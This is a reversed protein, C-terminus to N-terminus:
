RIYFAALVIRFGLDDAQTHPPAFARHRTTAANPTLKFSGGRVARPGTDSLRGKNEGRPNICWERINGSMGRVNFPSEGSTYATVPTLQGHGGDLTNCNESDFTEGWPYLWKDPGSAALQWEHETPLRIQLPAKLRLSRTLWRCFAVADYWPVNVRPEDTAADPDYTLPHAMSWRLAERSFAWRDLTAERMFTLFQANTVPFRACYFREIMHKSGPADPADDLRTSGAPIECWAFPPPLLQNIRALAHVLAQDPTM